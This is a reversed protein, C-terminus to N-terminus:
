KLAEGRFYKELPKYILMAVIETLVLEAAMYWGNYLASYIWPNTMTMGMYEEPMWAEWIWAGAVLHCIFRLTFTVAIGVAVAARSKGFAGSLGIVTYALIYDLFIVGAAM